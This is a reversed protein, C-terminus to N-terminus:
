GSRFFVTSKRWCFWACPTSLCQKSGSPFFFKSVEGLQQTGIFVTYGVKTDLWSQSWCLQFTKQRDKFFLFM